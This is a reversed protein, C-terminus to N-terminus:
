ATFPPTLNEPSSHLLSAHIARPRPTAPAGSNANFQLRPFARLTGGSNGELTEGEGANPGALFELKEVQVAHQVEEAPPVPVVAAVPGGPVGLRDDLQVLVRHHCPGGVPHQFGARSDDAQLHGRGSGAPRRRTSITSPSTSTRARQRGPRLRARRGPEGRRVPLWCCNELQLEEWRQAFKETETWGGMRHGEGRGGVPRAVLLGPPQMHLGAGAAGPGSNAGLM